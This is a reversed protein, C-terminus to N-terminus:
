ISLSEVDWFFLFVDDFYCMGENGGICVVGESILVVVGYVIWWFFKGGDWWVYGMEMLVFVYIDCMWLKENEWVFFLFNVGGVVILVKGYVGVFLGVVGLDNFLLLLLYWDFDIGDDLEKGIFLFVFVFLFCMLGVVIWGVFIWGVVNRSM